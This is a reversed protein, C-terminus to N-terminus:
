SCFSISSSSGKNLSRTNKSTLYADRQESRGLKVDFRGIAPYWTLRHAVEREQLREMLLYFRFFFFFGPFGVTQFSVSLIPFGKFFMWVYLM